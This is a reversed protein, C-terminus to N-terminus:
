ELAEVKRLRGALLLRAALERAHEVLESGAYLRGLEPEIQVMANVIAGQQNNTNAPTRLEPAKKQTNMDERKM